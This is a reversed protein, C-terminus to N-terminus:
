VSTIYAPKVPAFFRDWFHGTCKDEKNAARAIPENLCTMFWSLSSLRKRYVDAIESVMNHEASILSEGKLSWQVLLPGKFLSTWRQLIEDTTWHESQKPCLKAVIHIHNSMVAYSCLDIDFLSPLMRPRHEYRKGTIHDVGCLYTRRVCRSILHYYPTDEVSVLNKKPLTMAFDKKRIISYQSTSHNKDNQRDILSHIDKLLKQGPYGWFMTFTKPRYFLAVKGDTKAV